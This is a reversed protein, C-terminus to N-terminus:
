STVEFIGLSNLAPLEQVQGELTGCGPAVKVTMEMEPMGPLLRQTRAKKEEVDVKTTIEHGIFVM